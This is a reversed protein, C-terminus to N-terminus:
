FRLIYSLKKKIQDFVIKRTKKFPLSFCFIVQLVNCQFLRLKSLVNEINAFRFLNSVMSFCMFKSQSVDLRFTANDFRKNM